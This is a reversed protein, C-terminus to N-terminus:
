TSVGTLHPLSECMSIDLDVYRLLKLHDLNVTPNWPRSILRTIPAVQVKVHSRHRESRHEQLLLYFMKSFSVEAALRIVIM